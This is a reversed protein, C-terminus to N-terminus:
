PGRQAVARLAEKSEEGELGDQDQDQEVQFMPEM